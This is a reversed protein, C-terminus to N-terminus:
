HKLWKIYWPLRNHRVAAYPEEVAGFSSYFFQLGQVDSGEFDLTLNQGAHEQIFADVLLHSAGVARGQPHNGPLIYYARQHSFFFVASALVAGAASKVAYTAANGQKYLQRYLSWFNNFDTATGWNARHPKALAIVVEVDINKQIVGNRAVAKKINRHTQERYQQRVNQYSAHLPLVYNTRKYLPFFPVDFVNGFNLPLDWYQFRPPINKLFADLLGPSLANGFVGLQGVAFPHYLYCINWKSRWPLPMVARYDDLVLADWATCMADLYFTYGYILGNAAADLCANWKVADIEQRTVYRIM